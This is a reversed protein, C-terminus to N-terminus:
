FSQTGLPCRSRPSPRPRFDTFLRSVEWNQPLYVETRAICNSRPRRKAESIEREHADICDDLSAAVDPRDQCSRRSRYKEAIESLGFQELARSMRTFTEDSLSEYYQWVGSRTSGVWELLRCFLWFEEPLQREGSLVSIVHHLGPMDREAFLTEVYSHAFRVAM